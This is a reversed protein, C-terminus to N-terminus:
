DFMGELEQRLRTLIRFRAAHVAGVTLGLEAAVEATPRDNVVVEWCAKWSAPQFDAQMLQMARTVLHRRYEADDIEAVSDSDALADPGVDLKGAGHLGAIETTGGEAQIVPADNPSVSTQTANPDALHDHFALQRRVQATQDPFRTSLEEPTVTEGADMRVMYEGYVLDLIMDAPLSKPLGRLYDEVTPYEQREWRRRQDEWLLPVWQTEPLRALEALFESLPALPKQLSECAVVDPCRAATMEGGFRHESM